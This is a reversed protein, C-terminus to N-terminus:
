NSHTRFTNDAIKEHNILLRYRNNQTTLEEVLMSAENIELSLHQSDTWFDDVIVIDVNRIKTRKNRKRIDAYWRRCGRKNLTLLIM